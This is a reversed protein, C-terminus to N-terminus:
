GIRVLHGGTGEIKVEVIDNGFGSSMSDDVLGEYAVITGDPRIREKEWNGRFDSVFLLTLITAGEPKISEIAHYVLANNAEEFNRVFNRYRDDAQISKVSFEASYYLSDSRLKDALDNGLGFRDCLECMRDIAENWKDFKEVNM